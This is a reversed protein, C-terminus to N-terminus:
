IVLKEEETMGYGIAFIEAVFLMMVGLILDGFAVPIGPVIAYATDKLLAAASLEELYNALESLLSFAILLIGILRTRSVNARAFVHDTKGSKHLSNLIMFLVVFVGLYSFTSLLVLVLILIEKGMSRPLPAASQVEIDLMNIRGKIVVSSDANVTVPINYDAHALDTELYHFRKVHPLTVKEVPRTTGESENWFANAKESGERFGARFDRNMVGVMISAVLIVLFVYYLIRIRSLIQRKTRM